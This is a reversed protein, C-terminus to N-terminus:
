QKYYKEIEKGFRNGLEIGSLADYHALDPNEAPEKNYSLDLTDFYKNLSPDDSAFKQKAENVTEYRKWFTSDSIGADIFCIKGNTAYPALEARLYTVMDKQNQYYKPALVDSADSEGQMWCMADISADYNKARLYEMCGKTFALFATMLEGENGNKDPAFWQTALCSGGWAYKLIFIKEDPYAKSLYDAMGVEPGFFDKAYGMNLGAHVFAGYSTNSGNDDFYNIYVNEYGREYRAYDEASATTKLYPVRCVGSANSQGNLLVVKVKEGKGDPLTDQVTFHTVVAQGPPLPIFHTVVALSGIVLALVTAAIAYGTASTAKGRILVCVAAAFCALLLIDSSVSGFLYASFNDKKVALIIASAGFYLASTIATFIVTFLIKQLKQTLLIDSAWYAFALTCLGSLFGILLIEWLIWKTYADFLFYQMVGIACLAIIPIAIQLIRPM